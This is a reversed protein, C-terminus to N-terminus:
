LWTHSEHQWEPSWHVYCAAAGRVGDVLPGALAVAAGPAADAAAHGVGLDGM